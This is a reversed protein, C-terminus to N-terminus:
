SDVNYTWVGNESHLNGVWADDGLLDFWVLTNNQLALKLSPVGAAFQGIRYNAFPLYRAQIKSNLKKTIFQLMQKPRIFRLLVENEMLPEM